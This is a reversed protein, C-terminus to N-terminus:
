FSATFTVRGGGPLASAAVQQKGSPTLLLYAGVGVAVVGVGGLVAALPGQLQARDRAGELESRRSSPCDGDQCADKLTSINSERLALSIGAGALFVAGAGVGIWGWTRRSSGDDTTVKKEPPPPPTIGGPPPVVPPPTPAPDLPLVVAMKSGETVTFQTKFPTAGPATASVEHAGPDLAMPTRLEKNDVVAGDVEVELTAPAKDSPTLTLRPMRSELSANKDKAAKVVDLEKPNGAGLEIASQYSRSAERWKGLGELCTGIRYRVPVTDKVHQVRRYKELATDFRGAEEDVIAEGFLKRLSALEQASQARAPKAAPLLSATGLIVAFLWPHARRQASRTV